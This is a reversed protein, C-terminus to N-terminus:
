VVAANIGALARQFGARKRLENWFPLAGVVLLFSPLFIAVLAWSAGAVGTPPAGRAAGLYAAFTFLPGPVAQAAGYGAVCQASTVCGPGVVEAQLLPLVVHGGGFVLSGVRCARRGRGRCAQARRALRRRGGRVGAGRVRLRDARRRVAAHIRAVRRRRGRARGPAHRARDRGPEVGTGAPVPLARRPRRLDARRGV